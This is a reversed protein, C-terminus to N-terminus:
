AGAPRGRRGLSTRPPAGRWGSEIVAVLNVISARAAASIARSARAARPAAHGGARARRAPLAEAHLTARFAVRGTFAPADAAGLGLKERVKSRLGDAGILLDGTEQLSVCAASSTAEM